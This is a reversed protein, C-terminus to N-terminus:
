RRSATHRRIETLVKLLTEPPQAGTVVYKGAFVFTPVSTVGIRRAEEVEARVEDVGASSDLYARVEQEDFGTAAAVSALAARSGVDVGDVFHARFLADVMESARGREAAFRVLRHADFTNANLARDFRLTLGSEAAVSTVHALLQRVREPGGFKEALAEAVPRPESVPRPDLQFPRYRLSVEGDYSDLAQELRRKGIYCWPCVIDSYIVIEM